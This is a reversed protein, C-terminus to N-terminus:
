PEMVVRFGAHDLKLDPTFYGRQTSQGRHCDYNLSGGRVVKWESRSTSLYSGFWDECWEWVNGSMDYLDLENPKKQMVEHTTGGSNTRCWGLEEANNGGPYAYGKSKSGGKAAYEFEAETPLRFTKGTKESLWKCFEVADFWSVNVVPHTGQAELNLNVSTWPQAPPTRKRARCFEFYQMALVPTQSIYFTRLTRQHIPSTVESTASGMYFSGGEVLIMKLGDLPIVLMFEQVTTGGPGVATLKVKYTGHELYTHRDISKETSFTGDGLDWSYSTANQTRNLFGYSYKLGDGRYGVEFDATPKAINIVSVSKAISSSAALLSGYAKLSIQYTGGKTYIHKPSEQQSTSGDGFNWEYRTADKSRNVFSIECPATCGGGVMDFAAVPKAPERIVVDLTTGNVGGKGKGTLKVKYVGEQTYTHTPDSEDSTAGDGLDWQFSDAHESFNRFNVKCPLVCVGIDGPVTYDFTIMPPTPIEQYCGTLIAILLVSLVSKKM